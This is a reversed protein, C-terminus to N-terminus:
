SLTPPTDSVWWLHRQLMARRRWSWWRAHQDRRCAHWVRIKFSFTPDEKSSFCYYIYCFSIFYSPFWQLTTISERERYMYPLSAESSFPLMAALRAITRMTDALGGDLVPVQGNMKILDKLLFNGGTYSFLFVGMESYLLTISVQRVTSWQLTAPRATLALFVHRLSAHFDLTLKQFKWSLLKLM